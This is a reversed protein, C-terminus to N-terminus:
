GFEAGIRRISIPVLVEKPTCLRLYQLSHQGRHRGTALPCATKPTTPLALLTHHIHHVARRRRRRRIEFGRDFAPFHLEGPTRSTIIHPHAAVGNPAVSSHVGDPSTQVPHMRRNSSVAASVKR